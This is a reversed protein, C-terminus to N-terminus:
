EQKMSVKEALSTRMAMKSLWFLLAIRACLRSYSSFVVSHPCALYPSPNSRIKTTKNEDIKKGRFHDNDVVSKLKHEVSIWTFASSDWGQHLSVDWKRALRPLTLFAAIGANTAKYFAFKASFTCM